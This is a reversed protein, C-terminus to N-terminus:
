RYKMDGATIAYSLPSLNSFMLVFGMLICITVQYPGLGFNKLIEDLDVKEEPKM